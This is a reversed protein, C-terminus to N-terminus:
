LIDVIEIYAGKWCGVQYEQGVKLLPVMRFIKLNKKFIITRHEEDGGSWKLDHGVSYMYKTSSKSVLTLSLTVRKAEPILEDFECDSCEEVQSFFVNKDYAVLENGIVCEIM